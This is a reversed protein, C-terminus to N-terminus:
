HGTCPERLQDVIEGQEVSQPYAQHQHMARPRLDLFPERLAPGLQAVDLAQPHSIILGQGADLLGGPGNPDLDLCQEGQARGVGGHGAHADRDGGAVEDGGLGQPHQLPHIIQM